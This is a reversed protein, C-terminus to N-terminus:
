RLMRLKKVRYRDEGGGSVSCEPGDFFTTGVNGFGGERRLDRRKM